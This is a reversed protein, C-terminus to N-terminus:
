TLGRIAVGAARALAMMKEFHEKARALEGHAMAEEIHASRLGLELYLRDRDSMEAQFHALAQLVREFARQFEDLDARAVM